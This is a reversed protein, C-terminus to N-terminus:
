GKSRLAAHVRALAELRVGARGGGLPAGKEQAGLLEAAPEIGGPRRKLVRCVARRLDIVPREELTGDRLLELSFFGWTALLDDPRLFAAWRARVADISDGTLLTERPLRVHHPTSEALPRRPALVAEFREGTAARIAALHVLEAPHGSNAPHANAEAYVLVVDQARESLEVPIPPPKGQRHKKLKRRPPTTRSAQKALQLDVMQEFARIMPAFREPEGELIGLAEVVAEITSLCHAEPEKRIRYNGPRTPTFRVRPLRQLVANRQVLKRAQSWTGDVVVLTTPPEALTRLDAAEPSPFLIAARPDNALAELEAVGDFSVGRLFRSGPLALHAMRATGIAVYRERPHQLFVVRTRAAIGPLDRCWCASEPRLCRTCLARFDQAEATM